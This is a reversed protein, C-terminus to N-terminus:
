VGHRKFHEFNAALWMIAQKDNGVDEVNVCNDSIVGYDQLINLVETQNAFRARIWNDLKNGTSSPTSEM